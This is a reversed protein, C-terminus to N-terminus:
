YHPPKEHPLDEGQGHEALRQVMARLTELDRRFRDLVAQQELVVNNLQDLLRQQFLLQAQLEAIPSSARSQPDASDQEDSM